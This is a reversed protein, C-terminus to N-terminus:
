CSYRSILEQLTVGVYRKYPIFIWIKYFNTYKINTYEDIPLTTHNTRLFYM